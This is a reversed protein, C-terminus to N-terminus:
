FELGEKASVIYFAPEGNPFRVIEKIDFWDRYRLGFYHNITMIQLTVANPWSEIPDWNAFEYADFSEVLSFSRSGSTNYKVTKLYVPLPTKLYYLFFIYPQARIDTMYTRYYEPHEKVYEVVQKMGYQWQIADRKPYEYFYDKLFISFQSYILVLAILLVILQPLRWRVVRLIM